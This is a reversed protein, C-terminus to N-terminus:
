ETLIPTVARQEGKGPSRGAEMPDTDPKVDRSAPYALGARGEDRPAPTCAGLLAFAAVPVLLASPRSRVLM